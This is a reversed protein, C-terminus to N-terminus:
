RIIDAAASPNGLKFDHTYEAEGTYRERVRSPAASTCECAFGIGRARGGEAKVLECAKSLESQGTVRYARPPGGLRHSVGCLLELKAYKPDGDDM